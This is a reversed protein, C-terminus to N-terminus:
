VIELGLLRVAKSLRQVDKENVPRNHAVKRRIWLLDEMLQFLDEKELARRGFHLGVAFAEKWNGTQLMIDRLNGLDTYYLPHLNPVADSASEQEEARRAEADGVLKEDAIRGPWWGADVDGLLGIIRERLSNEVQYLLQASRAHAAPQQIEPPSEGGKLFTRVASNEILLEAKLAVQEGAARTLLGSGCLDDLCESGASLDTAFWKRLVIPESTSGGARDLDALIGKAAHGHDDVLRRLFATRGKSFDPFAHSLNSADGNTQQILEATLQPHGGTKRISARAIPREVSWTSMVDAETLPRARVEVAINLLASGRGGLVRRVNPRGLLLLGLRGKAQPDSFLARWADQWRDVWPADHLSECNDVVVRICTERHLESALPMEYESGIVSALLENM